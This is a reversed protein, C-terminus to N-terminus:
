GEAHHRERKFFMSNMSCLQSLKHPLYAEMSGLRFGAYKLVTRLLAEPIRYSANKMLYNLESWIFKKGANEAHGFEQHIWPERAHFVGMDFYRKFEQFLTYSHSHYVCADHQYAVKYGKKLVQAAALMDEGFIVGSQFGDIDRLASVRYASFSNSNFAVKLGVKEKDEYAYVHSQDPYNSLRAHAEIPLANKKPLQRGYSIAVSEDNFAEVLQEISSDDALLADQTLFVIIDSDGTHDLALQRTGGHDFMEKKIMQVNFDAERALEDTGDKSSSDIILKHCDITQSQLAEINEKWLDGANYTPIVVSVKM